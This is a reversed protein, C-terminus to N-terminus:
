AWPQVTSPIIHPASGGLAKDKDEGDIEEQQRREGRDGSRKSLGLIKLSHPGFANVHILTAARAMCRCPRPRPTRRRTHAQQDIGGHDLSTRAGAAEKM